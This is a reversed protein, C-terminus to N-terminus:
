WGQLLVMTVAPGAAALLRIRLRDRAFNLVLAVAAALAVVAAWFRANLIIWWAGGPDGAYLGIVYVTAVLMPLGAVIGTIRSKFTRGAALFAAAGLSWLIATTCNSLYGARM